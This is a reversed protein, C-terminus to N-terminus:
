TVFFMVHRLTIVRSRFEDAARKAHQIFDPGM